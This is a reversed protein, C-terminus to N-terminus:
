PQGPLRLTSGPKANEAVACASNDGLTDKKEGQAAAATVSSPACARGYREAIRSLSAGRRIQIGARLAGIVM